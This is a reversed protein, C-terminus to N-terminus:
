HKRTVTTSQQTEQQLKIMVNVYLFLTGGTNTM